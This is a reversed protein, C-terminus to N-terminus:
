KANRLHGEPLRLRHKGHSRMRLQHNYRDRLTLAMMKAEKSKYRERADEILRTPSSKELIEILRERDMLEGFNYLFIAVGHVHGGQLGVVDSGYAERLIALTKDLMERDAFDRRVKRLTGICSLMGEKRWMPLVDDPEDERKRWYNLHFGHREVTDKLALAEPEGAMLQARFAEQPTIYLRVQNLDAFIKAEREETLHQYVMAPVIAEMQGLSRIAEVRHAGDLIYRSGDERESVLIVGLLDGDFDKAIRAIHRSSLKRQYRPDANLTEIGIWQLEGSLGLVRVDGEKPFQLQAPKATKQRTTVGLPAPLAM